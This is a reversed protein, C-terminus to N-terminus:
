ATPEVGVEPNKYREVKLVCCKLLDVGMELNEYHEIKLV